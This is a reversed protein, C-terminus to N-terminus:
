GTKGLAALVKAKETAVDTRKQDATKLADERANLEKLKKELADTRRLRTERDLETLRDELWEPVPIVLRDYETKMDRGFASLAVMEDLDTREIDLGRLEKLMDSEGGRRRQRAPAATRKKMDKWRERIAISDIPRALARRIEEQDAEGTRKMVENIRERQIDEAVEKWTIPAYKNGEYDYDSM